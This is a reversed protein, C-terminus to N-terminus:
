YQPTPFKILSMLDFLSVMYNFHGMVIFKEILNEIKSIPFNYKLNKLLKRICLFNDISKPTTGCCSNNGKIYTIISQPRHM